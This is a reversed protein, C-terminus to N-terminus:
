ERRSRSRTTDVLTVWEAGCRSCQSVYRDPLHLTTRKGNWHGPAPPPCKPCEREVRLPKPGLRIAAAIKAAHELSWDASGRSDRTVAYLARLEEAHTKWGLKVLHRGLEALDALTM